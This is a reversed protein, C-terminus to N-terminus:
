YIEGSVPQAESLIRDADAIISAREADSPNSKDVLVIRIKMLLAERNPAPTILLAAQAEFLDARLGPSREAHRDLKCIERLKAKVGEMDPIDKPLTALTKEYAAVGM